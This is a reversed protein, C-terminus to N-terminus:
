RDLQIRADSGTLGCCFKVWELLSSVDHNFPKGGIEELRKRAPSESRERLPWAMSSLAFGLPQLQDDTPHLSPVAALSAVADIMALTTGLDYGPQSLLDAFHSAEETAALPELRAAANRYADVLSAQTVTDLGPKAIRARLDNAAETAAAPDLRAVTRGYAHILPLDVDDLTQSAMELPRGGSVGGIVTVPRSPGTKM